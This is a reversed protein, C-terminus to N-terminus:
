EALWLDPYRFPSRMPVSAVNIPRVETNDSGVSVRVEPFLLLQSQDPSIFAM